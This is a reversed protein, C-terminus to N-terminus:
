MLQYRNLEGLKISDSVHQRHQSFISKSLHSLHVTGGTADCSISSHHIGRLSVHIESNRPTVGEGRIVSSDSMITVVLTRGVHLWGECSQGCHLVPASNRENRGKM